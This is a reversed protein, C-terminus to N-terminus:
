WGSEPGSRQYAFALWAAGAGCLHWVAHGQLPSTPACAVRALDVAWIAFGVALLGAARWLLRADLDAAGSRARAVGAALTALVLVLFVYRRLTPWTYLIAALAGNVAVYGLVLARPSVPWRRAVDYLLLLTVLLYMGMVDVFQGVLSLSAHLFATGIGTVLVAAAFTHGLADATGGRRERRVAAVIAAAVLVFALASATNAPQAGPGPRIAECFCADPRCTAPAWGPWPASM